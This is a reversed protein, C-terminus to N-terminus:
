SGEAGPDLADRIVRRHSNHMSTNSGQGRVNVTDPRPSPNRRPCIPSGCGLCALRCLPCINPTLGTSLSLRLQEGVGEARAPEM